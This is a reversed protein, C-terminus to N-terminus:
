QVFTWSLLSWVGFVWLCCFSVFSLLNYPYYSWGNVHRSVKLTPHGSKSLLIDAGVAKYYKTLNFDYGRARVDLSRKSKASGPAPGKREWEEMGRCMFSEHEEDCTNGSGLSDRLQYLSGECAWWIHFILVVVTLLPNIYSTDTVVMMAEEKGWWVNNEQEM